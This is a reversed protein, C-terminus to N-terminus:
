LGYPSQPKDFMVEEAVSFVNTFTDKFGTKTGYLSSEGLNEKTIRLGRYKTSLFQLANISCRADYNCQANLDQLVDDDVKVNELRCIQRMRQILRKDDAEPIKVLLSLDRLPKIAKTYLDNCIFIIPRKLEFSDNNKKKSKSVRVKNDAEDLDADENDSQLVEDKTEEVKTSKTTCKKLFEAVKGFGTNIGGSVAGDVEDV